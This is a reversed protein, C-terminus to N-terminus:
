IIMIQFKMNVTYRLDEACEYGGHMSARYHLHNFFIEM